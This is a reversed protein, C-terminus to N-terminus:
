VNAEAPNMCWSKFSTVYFPYDGGHWPGSHMIQKVAIPWLAPDSEWWPGIHPFLKSYSIFQIGYTDLHVHDHIWKYRATYGHPGPWTDMDRHTHTWMARHLTCESTTDVNM